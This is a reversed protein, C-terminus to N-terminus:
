AALHKEFGSLPARNKSKCQASCTLNINQVQPSNFKLLDRPMQNSLTWAGISQFRRLPRPPELAHRQDAKVKGQRACALRFYASCLRPTFAGVAFASNILSRIQPARGCIRERTVTLAHPPPKGGVARSPILARSDM